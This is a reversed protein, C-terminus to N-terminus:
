DNAYILLRTVILNLNMSACRHPLKGFVYVANSFFLLYFVNAMISGAGVGVFVCFCVIFCFSLSFPGTLM